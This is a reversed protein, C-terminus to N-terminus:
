ATRNKCLKKRLYLPAVHLTRNGHKTCNEDALKEQLLYFTGKGQQLRKAAFCLSGGVAQWASAQSVAFLCQM